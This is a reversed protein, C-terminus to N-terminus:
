YNQDTFHSRDRAIYNSTYQNIVTICLLTGHPQTHREEVESRPDEGNVPRCTRICTGAAVCKSAEYM